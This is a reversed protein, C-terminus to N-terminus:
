DSMTAGPGIQAAGERGHFFGNAFPAFPALEALRVHADAGAMRGDLVARFTEAVAVMDLHHPSLRFRRVGMALLAPVEGALNGITHSLTQTGNIALFPQGDLTEVAMGDADLGCVFDCSNKSRGLARAHYCRASIALPTRGFVQVELEAPGAAAALARISPAPVEFPLVVRRAGGRVLHDLTGENYVNVYPGIAHPRGTLVAVAGLDNAEVLDGAADEALALTARLSARDRAETVLALTSWLVQKGARRLRAAVVPLDAAVFPERKGCVVEGLCVAQVPAEDAMRFYFDRRQRAPWNFLLPGLTLAATPSPRPTLAM